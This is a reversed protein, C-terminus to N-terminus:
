TRVRKTFVYAGALAAVFVILIFASDGTSPAPNPAPPPPAVDVPGPEDPEPEDPVPDPEPAAKAPGLPLIGQFAEASSWQSDVDDAMGNLFAQSSRGGDEQNDAIQFDVFIKNGEALSVGDTYSLPLWVEMIYGKSLDSGELPKIVFHKGLELEDDGLSGSSHNGDENPASAVRIQWCNDAESVSDAPQGSAISQWDIFFEVNDRQYTDNHDHNPTVDNVELYYFVGTNNWAAWVKATCGDGNGDRYSNVEFMDGYGDDRVGDLVIDAKPAVPLTINQAAVPVALALIMTAFLVLALFKKM